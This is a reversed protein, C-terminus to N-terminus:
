HRKPQTSSAQLEKLAALRPDDWRSSCGCSATNLNAGCVACLGKCDATCLPKMPLALYLQELMLQGLDITDNEYFATTLDDEEVEREGEGTNLSHPQYRLDFNTEITKRLTELCRSCELEVTTEVKGVLRFRDNTKYVDFALSLPAVLKFGDGERGVQESQYVREFREEASRIAKLNLSLM